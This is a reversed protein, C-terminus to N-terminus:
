EVHGQLAMMARPILHTEPNRFEDISASKETGSANFYRLCSGFQRASRFDALIQEIMWKSIGYPDVPSGAADKAIPDRFAASSLRAGNSM